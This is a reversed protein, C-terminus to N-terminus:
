PTEPFCGLGKKFQAPRKQWVAYVRERALAITVRMRSKNVSACNPSLCKHVEVRIVSV